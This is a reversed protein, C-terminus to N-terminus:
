FRQFLAFHMLLAFEVVGAHHMNWIEVFLDVFFYTNCTEKVEKDERPCNISPM